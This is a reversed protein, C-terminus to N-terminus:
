SNRLKCTEPLGHYETDSIHIFYSLYPKSKHYLIHGLDRFYSLTPNDFHKHNFFSPINQPKERCHIIIQYARWAGPQLVHCWLWPM